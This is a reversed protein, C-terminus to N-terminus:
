CLLFSEINKYVLLTTQNLKYFLHFSNDLRTKLFIYEYCKKSFFLLNQYKPSQFNERFYLSSKRPKWKRFYLFVKRKFSYLFNKPPRNKKNKLSLFNSRTNYSTKRFIFFKKINSSSLKM